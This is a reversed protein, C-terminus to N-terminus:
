GERHSAVSAGQKSAGDTALADSSIEQSVALWAEYEPHKQLMLPHSQGYRFFESWLGIITTAFDHYVIAGPVSTTYWPPSMKRVRVCFEVDEFAACPFDEDFAAQVTGLMTPLSMNCTPSYLLTGPPELASRGNLTGMTDHFRGIFSARSLSRTTGGYIGPRQAQATRMAEIWGPSAVVDADLLCVTTAGLQRALSLGKNRAAAPGANDQRVMLISRAHRSLQEATCVHLPESSGDDVVILVDTCRLQPVVSDVARLLQAVHRANRAFYPIM